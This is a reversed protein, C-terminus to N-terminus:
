SDRSVSEVAIDWIEIDTIDQRQIAGDALQRFAAKNTSGVRFSESVHRFVKDMNREHVGASMEHLKRDIQETDSELFYDAARLGILLLLALVSLGILIAKTSPRKKKENRKSQNGTFVFAAGLPVVAAVILLIYAWSPPSALFDM